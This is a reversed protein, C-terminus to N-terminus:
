EGPPGLERIMALVADIDEGTIDMHTVFRLREPGLANILIGQTALHSVWRSGMEPECDVYLINTPCREVDISLGEIANLGAALKKANDHDVQLRNVNHRLAFLGAAALIGVQRMAGGFRKRVSLAREIFEHPGCLMSGVPAGLGKSLCFMVSDARDAIEAVPVDWATAANFLRAGDMHVPVGADRAHAAIADLKDREPLTGGAMNHTVEVSVVGVPVRYYPAPRLAREVEDPMLCGDEDGQMVAPTLGSLSAMAGQEYLLIHARAECLVSQGRDAWTALAVQNGMSGTPMFLAAEKGTIEAARQELELATPDERYVDDGVLAETMARRMAESPRTVTDSRLDYIPDNTHRM